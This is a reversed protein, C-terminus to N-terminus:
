LVKKIRLKCIKRSLSTNTGSLSKSSTWWFVLENFFECTVSLFLKLVNPGPVLTLFSKKRRLKCLPGIQAWLALTNIGEMDKWSLRTNAFFAPNEIISADKLEEVRRHAGPRGPFTLSPQLAMGPVFWPISFPHIDSYRQGGTQSTQFWSYLM